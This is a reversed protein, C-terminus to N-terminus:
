WNRAAESKLLFYLPSPVVSPYVSHLRPEKELGWSELLELSRHEEREGLGSKHGGLGEAIRQQVQASSLAQPTPGQMASDQGRLGQAGQKDAM